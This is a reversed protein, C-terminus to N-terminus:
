GAPQLYVPLCQVGAAAAAWSVPQWQRAELQVGAVVGLRWLQLQGAWLQMVAAVAPLEEFMQKGELPRLPWAAVAPAAGFRLQRAWCAEASFGHPVGTLKLALPSEALCVTM